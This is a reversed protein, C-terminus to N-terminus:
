HHDHPVMLATGRVPGALGRAPKRTSIISEALKESIVLIDEDNGSCVPVDPRRAEFHRIEDAPLDESEFYQGAIKVGMFCFFALMHAAGLVSSCASVTLWAKQHDYTIVAMDAVRKFCTKKASEAPRM